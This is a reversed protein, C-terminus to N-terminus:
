ALDWKTDSVKKTRLTFVNNPINYMEMFRKFWTETMYNDLIDFPQIQRAPIKGEAKAKEAHAIEEESRTAPNRVCIALRNYTPKDIDMYIKRIEKQGKELDEEGRLFKGTMLDGGHYKMVFRDNRMLSEDIGGDVIVYYLTHGKEHLYENFHNEIKGATCWKTGKGYACAAGQSKPIIIKVGNKNFVEVVNSKSFRDEERVTMRRGLLEVFKKFLSFDKKMWYAIDNMGVEEKKNVKNKHAKFNAFYEDITKEPIGQKIFNIKAQNFNEVLLFYSNIKETIISM